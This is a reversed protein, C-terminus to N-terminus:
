RHAHAPDPPECELILFVFPPRREHPAVQYAFVERTDPRTIGLAITWQGVKGM